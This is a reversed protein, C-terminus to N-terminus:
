CYQWLIAKLVNILIKYSTPELVMIAVPKHGGGGLSNWKEVERHDTAPLTNDM